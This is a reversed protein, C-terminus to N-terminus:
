RAFVPLAADPDNLCKADLKQIWAVAERKEPFAKIWPPGDMTPVVYFRSGTPDVALVVKM